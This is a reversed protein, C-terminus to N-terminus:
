KRMNGSHSQLPVCKKIVELNKQLIKEFIHRKQEKEGTQM